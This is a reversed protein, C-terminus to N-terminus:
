AEGECSERMIACVNGCFLQMTFPDEPLYVKLKDGVKTAPDNLQTAIVHASFDVAEVITWDLSSGCRPAPPERYEGVLM